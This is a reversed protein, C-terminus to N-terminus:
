PGAEESARLARGETPVEEQNGIQTRKTERHRRQHRPIQKCFDDYMEDAKRPKGSKGVHGFASPLYLSMVVQEAINRTVNNNEKYIQKVRKIKERNAKSAGNIYRNELNQAVEIVSPM